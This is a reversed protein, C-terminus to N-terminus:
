PSMFPVPLPQSLAVLDPHDGLGAVLSEARQRDPFGLAMLTGDPHWTVAVGTCSYWLEDCESPLVQCHSFLDWQRGTLLFRGSQLCHPNTEAKMPCHTSAKSPLAPSPSRGLGPGSAGAAAARCLWLSFPPLDSSRLFTQPLPFDLLELSSQM